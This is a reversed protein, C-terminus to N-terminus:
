ASNWANSILGTSCHKFVLLTGRAQNGVRPVNCLFTYQEVRQFDLAHFMAKFCAINWAFLFRVTLGAAKRLWAHERIESITFREDQNKVIINKLLDFVEESAQINVFRNHVPVIQVDSHVFRNIFETHPTFNLIVMDTFDEWDVDDQNESAGAFPHSGILRAHCIEDSLYTEPKSVVFENM